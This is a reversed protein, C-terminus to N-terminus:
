RLAIYPKSQWHTCHLSSRRARASVFTCAPMRHLKSRRNTVFRLRAASCVVAFLSARKCRYSRIAFRCALIVFSTSLTSSSVTSSSQPRFVDGRGDGADGRGDRADGRGDISDGRGDKSDGIGDGADGRGDRADEGAGETGDEGFVCIGETDADGIAELDVDVFDGVDGVGSIGGVQTTVISCSKGASDMCVDGAGIGASDMCVSAAGSQLEDLKVSQSTCWLM